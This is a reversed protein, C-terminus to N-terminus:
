KKMPDIKDLYGEKGVRIVTQLRRTTYKWGREYIIRDRFEALSPDPDEVDQSFGFDQRYEERMELWTDYMFRFKRLTDIKKPVYDEPDEMDETDDAGDPTEKGGILIDHTRLTTSVIHILENRMQEALWREEVEYLHVDEKRLGAAAFLEGEEVDYHSDYFTLSLENRLEYAQVYGLPEDTGDYIGLGIVYWKSFTGARDVLEVRISDLTKLLGEFELLTLGVATLTNPLKQNKDQMITM